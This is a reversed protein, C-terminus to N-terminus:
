AAERHQLATERRHEVLDGIATPVAPDLAPLSSVRRRRRNVLDVFTKANAAECALYEWRWEPRDARSLTALQRTRATVTHALRGVEHQPWGTPCCEPIPCVLASRVVPDARLLEVQPSPLSRGLPSVYVPRGGGGDRPDRRSRQATQLDCRERWGLGTEYGCAGAAVAVPGLLGQQWAFVPATRRLRAVVPLLSSMREYIKKGCDVKAASLAIQTCGLGDLHTVLPRLTAPWTPRDLLRWSLAALAITPLQIRHGDLYDRTLEWLHVQAELWGDGEREIHVYPAVIATAGARLQFEVAAAVLDVPMRGGTLQEPSLRDAIAFPLQAWADARHQRDQLFHTQPDVLLGLGHRRAQVALRPSAAATHADIVIRHRVAGGGLRQHAAAYPILAVDAAAGTLHLLLEAM